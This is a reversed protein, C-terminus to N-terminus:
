YTFSYDFSRRNLHTLLEGNLDLHFMIHVSLASSLRKYGLRSLLLGLNIVLLWQYIEIEVTTMDPGPILFIKDLHIHWTILGPCVAKESWGNQLTGNINSVVEDPFALNVNLHYYIQYVDRMLSQYKGPIHM